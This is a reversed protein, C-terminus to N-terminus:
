AVGLNLRITRYHARDIKDDHRRLDADLVIYTAALFTTSASRRRCSPDPVTRAGIAAAITPRRRVRGGREVAGMVPTKNTVGQGGPPDDKRRNAKRPKGGIYAHLSPPPHASVCVQALDFVPMGSLAVGTQGPLILPPRTYASCRILDPHQALQL